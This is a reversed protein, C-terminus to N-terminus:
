SQVSIRTNDCEVVRQRALLLASKQTGFNQTLTEIRYRSYKDVFPKVWTLDERYMVLDEACQVLLKNLVRVEQRAIKRVRFRFRTFNFDCDQRRLSVDPRIRVALSPNLSFVRNLVRVDQTAEIAIPFDSTFFPSDQFSNHMIEWAFNGFMSTMQLINSIGIAQPFKPDITIQVTENELLETLSASGLAEPVPPFARAADLARATSELKAKMPAAQLRIGTPFCTVIYAAFGAIVYISEPSPAGAAIPSVASNYKPDITKLFAEVHRDNKLYANTSGDAIRCVSEANPTFAKGDSKRMAYLREGLVPSYFNRLHVQSVYHDLAM